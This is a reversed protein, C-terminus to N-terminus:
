VHARGIKDDLADMAFVFSAALLMGAVTALLTNRATRPRVPETPVAAPESVVVNTTTQAEALRVQEYNTVLNSYLRQYETLRAELQTQEDPSPGAAIAQNTAEIQQSMDNVQKSLSERSAAYRESQLERIRDTFVSALTDAIQAALTPSPHEVNIVLLQTDRVVEVSVMKKLAEPTTGLALQDIVGQLVPREVLMEAYTSTMSQSSVIGSYDISRMAPPDSVLLRTSSQYIPTTNLSVALAVVGALLGALIILWAWSWFLYFIERVGDASDSSEVEEFQNM